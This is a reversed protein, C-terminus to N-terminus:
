YSFALNIDFDRIAFTYKYYHLVQTVDLVNARSKRPSFFLSLSECYFKYEIHVIAYDDVM